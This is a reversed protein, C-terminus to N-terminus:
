GKRALFLEPDQEIGMNVYKEISDDWNYDDDSSDHKDKTINIIKDM